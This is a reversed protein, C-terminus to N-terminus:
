ETKWASCFQTFVATSWEPWTASFIKVFNILGMRKKQADFSKM